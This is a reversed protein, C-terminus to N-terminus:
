LYKTLDGFEFQKHVSVKRLFDFKLAHYAAVM